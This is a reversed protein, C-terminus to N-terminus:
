TLLDVSGILLKKEASAYRLQRCVKFYIIWCRTLMSSIQGSQSSCSSMEIFIIQVPIIGTLYSVSSGGPYTGDVRNSTLTAEPLHHRRTLLTVVDSDAKRYDTPFMRIEAKVAVYM